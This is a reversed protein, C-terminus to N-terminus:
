VNLIPPSRQGYPEALIPERQGPGSRHATCTRWSSLSTPASGVQERAAV